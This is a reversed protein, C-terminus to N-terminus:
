NDGGDPKAQWRGEFDLPPSRPSRMRCEEVIMTLIGELNDRVDLARFRLTKVGERALWADRRVDRGPNNGLEHALGDVEVAVAAEHCFFDLVYPGLPHQRRFKLGNPRTRLANWLRLEPPTM